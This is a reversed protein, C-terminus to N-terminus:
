KIEKGELGKLEKKVVPVPPPPAERAAKNIADVADQNIQWAKLAAKLEDATLTADFVPQAHPYGEVEVVIKNEWGPEKATMKLIKM